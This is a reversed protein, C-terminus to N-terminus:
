RYYPRAALPSFPWPIALLVLLLAASFWLLQTKFRTADTQQRRTLASGITLVVIAALMLVPHLLGFFTLEPEGLADKFHARFYSTIPSRFYLLLGILLQIHSLTVTWHRITNDTKTYPRHQFSGTGARFVAYMLALLVLWRLLSHYVLLTQYM